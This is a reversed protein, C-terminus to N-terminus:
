KRNPDKPQTMQQVGTGLAAGRGASAAGAAASGTMAGTVGGGILANGIPDTRVPTDSKHIREMEKKREADTPQALCISQISICLLMILTRFFIQTLRMIVEM